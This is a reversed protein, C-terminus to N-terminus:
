SVREEHVLCYCVSLGRDLGDLMDAAENDSLVRVRRRIRGMRRWQGSYVEIFTTWGVSLTRGGKPIIGTEIPIPFEM